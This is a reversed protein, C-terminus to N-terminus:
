LQGAVVARELQEHVFAEFCGHTFVDRGDPLRSLIGGSEFADITGGRSLQRVPMALLPDAPLSTMAELRKTVGHTGVGGIWESFGLISSPPAPDSRPRFAVHCVRGRSAPRRAVDWVRFKSAGRLAKLVVTTKM